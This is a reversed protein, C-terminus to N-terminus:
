YKLFLFAEFSAVTRPPPCDLRAENTGSMLPLNEIPIGYTSLLYQCELHSGFHVKFRTRLKAPALRLAGSSFIYQAPNSICLHVGSFQLPVSLALSTNEVFGKGGSQDQFKGVGYIVLVVGKIQAMRNNKLVHMFMYFRCRLESQLTPCETRLSTLEMMIQRGTQDHGVVQLMGSVIAMKDDQDMDELTIDKCLKDRGFLGDKVSFFRIMQDAAKDANYENGRLFMLRMERNQVYSPCTELAYKIASIKSEGQNSRAMRQQLSQDLGRLWDQIKDEDEEVESAVGHLVEQQMQREQFSLEVMSQALLSDLEKTKKQEEQLQQHQPQRTAPTFIELADNLFMHPNDSSSGSSMSRFSTTNATSGMSTTGFFAEHEDKSTVIPTAM